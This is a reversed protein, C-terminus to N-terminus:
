PSKIEARVLLWPSRSFNRYRQRIVFGCVIESAGAFMRAMMKTLNEYVITNPESDRKKQLRFPVDANLIGLPEGAGSGKLFAKDRYWSLGKGCINIIQGEGGPVDQALESSFRLLGTLKKANLLMNRTKPDHETITGAEATYSATFGGYLSSSHDGIEMAPLNIENSRM